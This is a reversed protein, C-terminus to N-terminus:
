NLVAHAPQIRAQVFQERYRALSRWLHDPVGAAKELVQDVPHQSSVFLIVIDGHEHQVHGLVVPSPRSSM